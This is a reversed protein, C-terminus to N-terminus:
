LTFRIILNETRRKYGKLKSLGNSKFVKGIQRYFFIPSGIGVLITFVAVWVM